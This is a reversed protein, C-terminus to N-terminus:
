ANEQIALVFQPDLRNSLDPIQDIQEQTKLFNALDDMPKLVYLNSDPNNLMEINANLDALKVGKLQESLDQPTLELREAAIAL